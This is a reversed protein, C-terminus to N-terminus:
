IGCAVVLVWGLWIFFDIKKLFSFIESWELWVLREAEGVMLCPRVQPRPGHLIEPQLVKDEPVCKPGAGGGEGVGPAQMFEHGDLRHHWGVMEDETM